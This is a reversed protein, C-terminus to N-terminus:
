KKDAAFSGALTNKGDDFVGAVSAANTGYFKGSLAAAKTATTVNGTFASGSIDANVNATLDTGAGGVVDDITGTIKKTGFDVTLKVDGDAISENADAKGGYAYIVNGEYRATGSTPMVSTEAQTSGFYAYKQATDNEAVVGFFEAGKNERVFYAKVGNFSGGWNNIRKANLTVNAFSLPFTKGDVVVANTTVSGTKLGSGAINANLVGKPATPTTSKNETQQTNSSNNTQNGNNDSSGGGSSSCAALTAVCLATLSFKVFTKM